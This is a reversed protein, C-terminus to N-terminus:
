EERLKGDRNIRRRLREIREGRWERSDIFSENGYPVYPKIAAQIVYEPFVVCRNLSSDTNRFSKLSVPQPRASPSSYVAICVRYPGCVTRHRYFGGVHGDTYSM